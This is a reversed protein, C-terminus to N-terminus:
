RFGRFHQKLGDMVRSQLRRGLTTEIESRIAKAHAGSLVSKLTSPGHIVDIDKRGKGIRHFPLLGGGQRGPMLWARRSRKVGAKRLIKWSLAGRKIRRTKLSAAAGTAKLNWGMVTSPRSSLMIAASTGGDFFRPKVDEKVRGSRIAYRATVAKSVAAPAASAAYKVGRKIAKDAERQALGTMARIFEQDGEISINLM